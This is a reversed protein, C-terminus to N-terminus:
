TLTELTRPKPSDLRSATKLLPCPFYLSIDLCVYPELINPKSIKCVTQLSRLASHQRGKGLLLDGTEARHREHPYRESGVISGCVHAEKTPVGSSHVEAESATQQGAKTAALLTLLFASSGVTLNKLKLTQPKLVRQATLSFYPALPTPESITASFCLTRAGLTQPSMGAPKSFQPTPQKNVSYKYPSDVKRELSLAFSSQLV